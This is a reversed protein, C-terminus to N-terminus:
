DQLLVKKRLSGSEGAGSSFGLITPKKERSRLGLSFDERLLFLIGQLDVRYFVLSLYLPVNPSYFNAVRPPFFPLPHPTCPSLPAAQPFYILFSPLNHLVVSEQGINRLKSLYCSTQARMKYILM